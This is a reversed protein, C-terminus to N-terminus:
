TPPSGVIIGDFNEDDFAPRVTESGVQEESPTMKSNTVPLCRDRGTIKALDLLRFRWADLEAKANVHGSRAELKHIVGETAVAVHTAVSGDYAVNAYIQFDAEVDTCALGLTTTDIASATPDQPNTLNILLKSAYRSTVEDALAM